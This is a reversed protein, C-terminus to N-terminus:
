FKLVLMWFFITVVSLLTTITIMSPSAVASDPDNATMISVSAGMPMATILTPIALAYSTLGITKLAVFVIIPLVILKVLTFYWIEIDKFAKVIDLDALMAGIIMMSTPTSMSGIARITSYIPGLIITSQPPFLASIFWWVLGFFCAAVVPSSLIARFEKWKLKTNNVYAYGMSWLYVNFFINYTSVYFLGLPGYLAEIFPYGMYMANPYTSAIVFLKKKNDKKPVKAFLLPTIILQVIPYYLIGLLLFIGIETFRSQDFPTLFSSLITMPFIVKMLFQTLGQQFSHTIILKRKLVFGTGMLLGIMIISHVGKLTGTIEM